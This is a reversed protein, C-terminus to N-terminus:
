IIPPSTKYRKPYILPIELSVRDESCERITRKEQGQSKEVGNIIIYHLRIRGRAGCVATYM